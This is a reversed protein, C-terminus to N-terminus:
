ELWGSGGTSKEPTLISDQQYSILKQIIMATTLGFQSSSYEWNEISNLKRFDPTVRSFVFYIFIYMISPTPIIDCINHTKHM